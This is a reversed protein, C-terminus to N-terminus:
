EACGDIEKNRRQLERKQGYLMASRSVTRYVMGKLKAPMRRDCLVGSCKNLRSGGAKHDGHGYWMGRRHELYKLRTSGIETLNGLINVPQRNGQESQEFTFDMFRTKPRSVRLGRDEGALLSIDPRYRTFPPIDALYALMPSIDPRYRASITRFASYRSFCIAFNPSGSIPEIDNRYRASITSYLVINERSSFKAFLSNSINERSSIKAFISNM